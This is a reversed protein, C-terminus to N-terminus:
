EPAVSNLAEPADEDSFHIQSLPVDIHGSDDDTGKHEFDLRLADSGSGIQEVAVIRAGLLRDALRDVQDSM